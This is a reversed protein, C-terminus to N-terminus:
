KLEKVTKTPIAPAPNVYPQVGFDRLSLRPTVLTWGSTSTSCPKAISSKNVNISTNKTNEIVSLLFFVSGYPVVNPMPTTIHTQWTQKTFSLLMNQRTPPPLSQGPPYNQDEMWIPRHNRNDRTRRQESLVGTRASGNRMESSASTSWAFLEKSISRM